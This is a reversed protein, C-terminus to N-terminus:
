SKLFYKQVHIIFAQVTQWLRHDTSTSCNRELILEILEPATLSKSIM